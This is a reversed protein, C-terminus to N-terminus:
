EREMAARLAEATAQDECHIVTGRRGRTLLIRYRNILRGVVEQRLRQDGTVAAQNALIRINHGFALRIDDQIDHPQSLDLRVGGEAHRVSLDRGWFLGAYDLEFGQCGYVSACRDFRHRVSRERWWIHYEEPTMLWEVRPSAVRLRNRRGNCVTYAALLGCDVEDGKERLYDVVERASSVVRLEYDSPIPERRGALLGEVWAAYAPPIRHQEDLTLTVVPADPFLSKWTRAVTQADGNDDENLVQDDDLLCAVVRGASLVAELQSPATHNRGSEHPVRHAEDVVVLDYCPLSEWRNPWREAVMPQIGVLPGGGKVYQVLARGIGRHAPMADDIAGRVVTCLRNNRLVLVSRQDIIGTARNVQRVLNHVIAQIGVVTKGSGPAGKVLILARGADRTARNIAAVIEEQRDSLDILRGKTAQNVGRTLNPLREILATALRADPVCRANRFSVLDAHDMGGQFWRRLEELLAGDPNLLSWVPVDPPALMALRAAGERTMCTMWSGAHWTYATALEHFLALRNRYELAQESPHLHMTGGVEVYPPGPAPSFSQWRKLEFVAAHKRRGNDSGVMVVDCRGLYCPIDYETLMMYTSRAPISAEEVMRAIVVGDKDWVESEIPSLPNGGSRERALSLSRGLGGAAVLTSFEALSGSFGWAM